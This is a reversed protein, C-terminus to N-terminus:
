RGPNAGWANGYIQATSGTRSSFLSPMAWGWMFESTKSHCVCWSSMQSVSWSYWKCILTLVHWLFLWTLCLMCVVSDPPIRRFHHICWQPSCPSELIVCLGAQRDRILYLILMDGVGLSWQFLCCLTGSELSSSKVFVFIRRISFSRFLSVIKSAKNIYM